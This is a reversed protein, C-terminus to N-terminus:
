QDIIQLDIPKMEFFTFGDPVPMDDINSAVCSRGREMTLLFTQAFGQNDSKLWHLNSCKYRM